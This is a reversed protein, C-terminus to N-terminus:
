LYYHFLVSTAESNESSNKELIAMIEFHPRPLWIFGLGSKAQYNRAPEDKSQLQFFPTFGKKVEYGTRTFAVTKENGSTWIRSGELLTYFHSSWALNGVLGFSRHRSGQGEANMTSAGFRISNWFTQSFSFIYGTMQSAQPNTSTAQFAGLTASLSEGDFSFELSDRETRPSFGLDSRIWLNHDPLRLGYVPEFRGARFFVDEKASWLIFYETGVWRVQNSERPNEIKGFASIFKIDKLALGLRIQSQMLFGESNNQTKLSLYRADGGVFLKELISDPIEVLGHLIGEEGNASWTSMLENSLSRGYSNLLGGGSYSVHCTTCNVYGHRLTDPFGWVKMAINLVSFVWIAKM